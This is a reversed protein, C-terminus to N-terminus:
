GTIQPLTGNWKEISMYHVLNPTISDSLIKNAKAQAEARVTIAKAEGTAKAVEKDAQARAEAVENQRQEARQMAEIKKNLSDTVQPPLRLDSAFYIREIIIGISEVQERVIQETEEILKAKGEGYVYEVEKNSAAIVLADRIMNRLYIDTIEEVGKRYKQFILPVKDPKISYSVGVDVNVSLGQKTQFTISDDNPSGETKSRTWIENQTFTPFLYLEENWGIWYRGPGLQETDVGKSGGLLYVKVGVNGAPVKSCASLGFLIILGLLMLSIKKM